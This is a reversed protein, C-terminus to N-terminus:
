SRNDCSMVMTRVGLKPYETIAEMIIIEQFTYFMWVRELMTKKFPLDM